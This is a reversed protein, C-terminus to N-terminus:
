GMTHVLATAVNQYGGDKVWYEVIAWNQARTRLAESGYVVDTGGVATEVVQSNFAVMIEM